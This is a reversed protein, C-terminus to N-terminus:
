EPLLFMNLFYFQFSKLSSSSTPFFFDKTDEAWSFLYVSKYVCGVYNECYQLMINRHTLYWLDHKPSVNSKQKRCWNSSVRESRCPFAWSLASASVPLRTKKDTTRLKLSITRHGNLSSSDFRFFTLKQWIKPKETLILWYKAKKAWILWLKPQKLDFHILIVKILWFNPDKLDFNTLMETEQGLNTM